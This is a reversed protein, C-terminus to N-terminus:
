EEIMKNYQAKRDVERFPVGSKLQAIINEEKQFFEETVELVEEAKEKPVVVVGNEDAMVIDGPRVQVGGVQIIKNFSEQMFRGRATRPIVGRAYIPYKYKKIEDVDRFAGDIIVGEIGKQIAAVSLIGGWCNQDTRGANDIVIVDGKGGMEIVDAGIHSENKTMGEATLRMTLATGVLKECEYFPRIGWIGSKLRLKDLADSVNCTSYKKFKEIIEAPPKKFDAM